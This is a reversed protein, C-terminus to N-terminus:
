ATLFFDPPHKYRKSTVGKGLRFHSNFTEGEWFGILLLVRRKVQDNFKQGFEEFRYPLCYLHFYLSDSSQFFCLDLKLCQYYILLLLQSYLITYLNLPKLLVNITILFWEKKCSEVTVILM